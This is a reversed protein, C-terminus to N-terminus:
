TVRIKQSREFSLGLFTTPLLTNFSFAVREKLHRLFQRITYLFTSSPLSVLNGTLVCNKYCQWSKWCQLNWDAILASSYIFLSPVLWHSSTLVACFTQFNLFEVYNLYSFVGMNCASRNADFWKCNFLAKASFFNNHLCHSAFIDM